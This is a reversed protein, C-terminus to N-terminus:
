KELGLLWDTSVNLVTALRALVYCNPMQHLAIYRYLNSKGNLGARREVERQTMGKRDIEVMQKVM